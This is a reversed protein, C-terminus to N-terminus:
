SCRKREEEAEKKRREEDEKKKRELQMQEQIKKIRDEEKQSKLRKQIDNMQTTLKNFLDNYALDIQGQKM